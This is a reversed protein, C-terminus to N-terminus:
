YISPLGPPRTKFRKHLWYYQAPGQQVAEEIFRNVRETDLLVDDTPFNEWAPYLTVVYGQRTMQAVCPLVVAGTSHALRSVLTITAAPMGFFPVFVSDRSGFDLDPLYYLPIGTRLHRIVMRLLSAERPLVISNNFRSRGRYLARDFLVDRQKAYISVFQGELSLRSGAADLGVFHPALIIVPRSRHALLHELGELRILARLRNPTAVWLVGRDLLSCAFYIFSKRVLGERDKESYAPFCARINSRAIARRSRAICYLSVGLCHGLGRLWLFPLFAGLRLLSLTCWVLIYRLFNVFRSM